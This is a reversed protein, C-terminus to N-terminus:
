KVYSDSIPLPDKGLEKEVYYTTMTVSLFCLYIMIKM